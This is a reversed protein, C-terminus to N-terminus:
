TWMEKENANRRQANFFFFQSRKSYADLQMAIATAFRALAEDVYWVNEIQIHTRPNLEEVTCRIRLTYIFLDEPMFFIKCPMENTQFLSHLSHSYLICRWPPINNRLARLLRLLLKEKFIAYFLITHLLQEICVCAFNFPIYSALCNPSLVRPQKQPM